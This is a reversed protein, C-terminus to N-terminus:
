ESYFTEYQKLNNRFAQEVSNKDIGRTTDHILNGVSKPVFGWIYRWITYSITIRPTNYRLLLIPTKM